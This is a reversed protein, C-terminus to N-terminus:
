GSREPMGSVSRAGRIPSSFPERADQPWLGYRDRRARRPEEMVYYLDSREGSVAEWHHQGPKEFDILILDAADSHFSDWREDPDEYGPVGSIVCINDAYLRVPENDPLPNDFRNVSFKIERIDEWRMPEPIEAQLGADWRLGLDGFAKLPVMFWTWDESLSGFDSLYVSGAAKRSDDGGDALSFIVQKVDKGTKLWFGIGAGKEKLDKLDRSRDLVLGAASYETSGIWTAASSPGFTSDSSVAVREVVGSFSNQPFRAWSWRRSKHLGEM